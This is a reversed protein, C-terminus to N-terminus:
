RYQTKIGLNKKWLTSRFLAIPALFGVLLLALQILVDLPDVQARAGEGAGQAGLGEGGPGAGSLVDSLRVGCLAGEVAGAAPKWELQFGAQPRVLFPM